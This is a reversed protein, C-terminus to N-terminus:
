EYITKNMNFIKDEIEKASMGKLLEMESKLAIRRENAIKIAKEKDEIYMRVTTVFSKIFIGGNYYSSTDIEDMYDDCREYSLVNGDWDMEIIIYPTIHKDRLKQKVDNISSIEWCSIECYPFMKIYELAEEHSSFIEDIHYESYNGSTVVYVTNM